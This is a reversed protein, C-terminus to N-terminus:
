LKSAFGSSLLANDYKPVAKNLEEIDCSLSSVRKGIAALLEKLIAPPINSQTNVYHPPDDPKRYPMYKGNKLNFTIDLFNVIHLNAQATIKLGLKAFVECFM